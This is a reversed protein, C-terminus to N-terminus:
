PHKAVLDPPPADLYSLSAYGGIGRRRKRILESMFASHKRLSQRFHHECHHLVSVLLRLKEILPLLNLHRIRCQGCLKVFDLLM